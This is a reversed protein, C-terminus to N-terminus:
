EAANPLGALFRFGLATCMGLVGFLGLLLIHEYSFSFTLKFFSRAGPIGAYIALEAFSPAIVGVLFGCLAAIGYTWRIHRLVVYTPVGLVIEALYFLSAVLGGELFAAQWQGEVVLALGVVFGPILPALLLAYLKKM